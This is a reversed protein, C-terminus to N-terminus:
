ATQGYPISDSQENLRYFTAKALSETSFEVEELHGDTETWCRVTKPLEAETNASAAVAGDPCKVEVFRKFLGQRVATECIRMASSYSVGLISRVNEIYIKEPDLSSLRLSDEESLGSV